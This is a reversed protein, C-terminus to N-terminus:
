RILTLAQHLPKLAETIGHALALGVVVFGVTALATYALARIM